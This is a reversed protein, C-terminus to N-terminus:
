AGSLAKQLAQSVAGKFASSSDTAGSVHEVPVAQRDVVLQMLPQVYACSYRTGCQTISTSVIKGGSIVVSVAIGGHRSNGVGSYTGDRYATQTNSSSSSSSSSSSPRPTAAPAAASSSQTQPLTASTRPSTNPATATAVPSNAAALLQDTSSQTNVYGITYVSVVAAASLALLSGGIKRHNTKKQAAAQAQPRAQNPQKSAPKGKVEPITIKQPQKRRKPDQM